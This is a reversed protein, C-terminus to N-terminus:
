NREFLRAENPVPDPPMEVLSRQALAEEILHQLLESFLVRHASAEWLFYAFSGPCPNIENFWLQRKEEDFIFDLRPAGTGGLAEFISKAWLRIDAEITADLTPNIDRTLSLMGDSPNGSKKGGDNRIYKEKFDLLEAASKPMEIASIQTEDNFMRVSVNYERRHSIYPEILAKADYLFITRLIAHVEEPSKAQAVGISSGMGAPKVIVPYTWGEPLPPAVARGELRKNVVVFPLQAAPTRAAVFSKTATKDMAVASGLLRMGTYPVSVSEMIGQFCGDEGLAGHFAPMAVDFDVSKAGWMGRQEPVLRGVGSPSYGLQVRTLRRRAEAGPIYLKRNRLPDGCFWEGALSVYVPIAEFRDTRLADLVQLGTIISIDHEPSRGGFFVAVRIRSM